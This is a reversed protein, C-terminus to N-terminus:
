GAFGGEEAGATSLYSRLQQPQVVAGRQASVVRSSLMFFNSCCIPGPYSWYASEHLESWWCPGRGHLSVRASGVEAPTAPKPAHGLDRERDFPRWAHTGQNWDNGAPKQSAAEEAKRKKKQKKEQPWTVTVHATQDSCREDGSRM